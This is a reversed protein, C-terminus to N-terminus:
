ESSASRVIRFGVVASATVPSLQQRCSVRCDVALSNWAGGRVIRTDGAVPGCPDSIPPPLAYYASTWITGVGGCLGCNETGSGGCQSCTIYGSGWCAPCNVAGLGGCIGCTEVTYGAGWCTTCTEYGSGGCNPCTDEGVYGSGGCMACTQNGSGYCGWCTVQINGDGGCNECMVFGSGGCVYCSENGMGGCYSCNVQGSGGCDGCSDNIGDGHDWCWETVNGAVDCVGYGNGAFTGGPCTCPESNSYSPHLGRTASVDYAITDSSYYNAQEHSIANGFAFRAGQRGGRAALEWEAETPLRYGNTSWRVAPNEINLQGSRYISTQTGDTYYCPTLHEMESKANCWLVADYWTVNGVPHNTAKGNGTSGISYGNTLAWARVADWEGQTVERAGIFFGKGIRVTHVPSENLEGSLGFPHDNAADGMEFIGGPVFIMSASASPEFMKAMVIGTNAPCQAYDSWDGAGNILSARQVLCTANPISNSWGISGYRDIYTIEQTVSGIVRFYAVQEAALVNQVLALFLISCLLVWSRTGHMVIGERNSTDVLHGDLIFIDYLFEHAFGLLFTSSGQQLWAEILRTLAARLAAAVSFVIEHSAL